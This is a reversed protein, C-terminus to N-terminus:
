VSASILVGTEGTATSGPESKIELLLLRLALM